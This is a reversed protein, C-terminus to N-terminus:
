GKMYSISAGNDFRVVIRSPYTPNLSEYMVGTICEAKHHKDECDQCKAKDDYVFGCYECKFKTIEKM